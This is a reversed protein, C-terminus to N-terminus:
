TWKLVKMYDIEWACDDIWNDIIQPVPGPPKTTKNAYNYMDLLKVPPLGPTRNKLADGGYTTNLILTMNKYQYNKNDSTNTKPCADNNKNGRYISKYGNCNLITKKM